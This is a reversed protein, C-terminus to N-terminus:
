CVEGVRAHKSHWAGADPRKQEVSSGSSPRQAAPQRQRDAQRHTTHVALPVSGTTKRVPQRPNYGAPIQQPYNYRPANQPLPGRPGPPPTAGAYPRSRPPLPPLASPDSRLQALLTKLQSLESRHKLLRNVEAELKDNHEAATQARAAAREADERASQLKKRLENVDEDRKALANLLFKAPKSADGLRADATERMASQAACQALADDLESQLKENTAQTELLKQALQVAHRVRREPRTLGAASALVIPPGADSKQSAAATQLVASDLELELQEYAAIKHGADQVRARLGREEAAARAELAAHEREAVDLQARLSQAKEDAQQRAETEAELRATLSAAQFSLMKTEATLDATASVRAADASDRERRCSELEREVALRRESERDFAAVADRRAERLAELEAKDLDRRQARLLDIEARAAAAVEASKAALRAEAQDTRKALENRVRVLEEKRDASEREAALRRTESNEARGTEARSIALAHEADRKSLRALAEADAVRRECEAHTEAAMRTAEAAAQAASRAGEIEGRLEKVEVQCKELEIKDKAAVDLLIRQNTCTARLEELEDNCLKLEKKANEERRDRRKEAAQLGEVRDLAEDRARATAALESRTAMMRELSVKSAEAVRVTALERLTLEEEPRQMLEVLVTFKQEDNESWKQGDRFGAEIVDRREQLATRTQALRSETGMLRERLGQVEAVLESERAARRILERQLHRLVEAEFEKGGEEHRSATEDDDDDFTEPLSLTPTSPAMSSGFSQSLSVEADGDEDLEGQMEPLLATDGAMEEPRRLSSSFNMEDEDDSEM